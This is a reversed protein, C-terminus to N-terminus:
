QCHQYLLDALKEAVIQKRSLYATLERENTLFAVEILIAHTSCHLIGLRGHVSESENKVGRAPIELTSAIVALVKQALAISEHSAGTKVFVEVGKSKPTGANFHLSCLWDGVKLKAKALACTRVLNHRDQDPIVLVKEVPQKELLSIISNRLDKTLDAERYTMGKHIAVAGPDTTSHGADLFLTRM